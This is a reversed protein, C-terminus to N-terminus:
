KKWFHSHFSGDVVCWWWWLLPSQIIECAHFDMQTHTTQKLKKKQQKPHNVKPESKREKHTLTKAPFKGLFSKEDFLSLFFVEKQNWNGNIKLSFIMRWEDPFQHANIWWECSDKKKQSCLFWIFFSFIKIFTTFLFTERFYFGSCFFTFSVQGM